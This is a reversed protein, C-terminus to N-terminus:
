TTKNRNPQASCTRPTGKPLEGGYDRTHGPPTPGASSVSRRLQRQLMPLLGPEEAGQQGHHRVGVVNQENSTPGVFVLPVGSRKAKYSMFTSFQACPRSHRTRQEHRQQGLGNTSTKSAPNKPLVRNVTCRCAMRTVYRRSAPSALDVRLSDTSKIASADSVESAQLHHEGDLSADEWKGKHFKATQALDQDAGVFAADRRQRNILWIPAMWTDNSTLM